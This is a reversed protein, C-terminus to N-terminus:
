DEEGLFLTAGHHIGNHEYAGGFEFSTGSVNQRWAGEPSRYGEELSMDVRGFSDPSYNRGTSGALVEVQTDPPFQGLFAILEAVTAM